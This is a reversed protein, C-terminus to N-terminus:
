FLSPHYIELAIYYCNIYIVDSVSYLVQVVIKKDVYQMYACIKLIM